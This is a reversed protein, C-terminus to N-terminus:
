RKVIISIIGSLLRRHVVAILDILNNGKNGCCGCCLVAVGVKVRCVSCLYVM